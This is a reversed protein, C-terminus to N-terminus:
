GMLMLSFSGSGFGMIMGHAALANVTAISSVLTVPDRLSAPAIYTGLRISDTASAAAAMCVYPDGCGAAPVGAFWAHTFGTQQALLAHSAALGPNGLGMHAGFEM